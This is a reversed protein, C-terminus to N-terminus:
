IMLSVSLVLLFVLHVLNVKEYYMMLLWHGNKLNLFNNTEDNKAGFNVNSTDIYISFKSVTDNADPSLAASISVDFPLRNRLESCGILAAREMSTEEGDDPTGLNNLPNWGEADNGCSPNSRGVLYDTYLENMENEDWSLTDGTAARGGNEDWHSFLYGDHANRRQVAIAVKGIDQAASNINYTHKINSLIAGVISLLAFTIVVGIALEIFTFGSQNKTLSKTKSFENKVEKDPTNQQQAEAYDM